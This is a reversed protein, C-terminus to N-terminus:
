SSPPQGVKRKPARSTNSVPRTNHSGVRRTDSSRRTRSPNIMTAINQSASPESILGKPWGAVITLGQYRDLPQSTTFYVQNNGARRYEFNQGRDGQAGTYGSLQFDTVTDPLTVLASAQDIRFNWGTGTVNWYLEDFDDFKDIKKFSLRDANESLLGSLEGRHNGLSESGFDSETSLADTFITAHRFM